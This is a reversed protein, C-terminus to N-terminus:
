LPLMDNRLNKIIKELDIREGLITDFLILYDKM